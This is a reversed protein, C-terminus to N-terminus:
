FFPIVKLPLFHCLNINELTNRNFIVSKVQVKIESVLVQPGGSFISVQGPVVLPIVHFFILNRIM